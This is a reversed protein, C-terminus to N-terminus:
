GVRERLRALFKMIRESPKISFVTGSFEVQICDGTSLTEVLELRLNNATDAGNPRGELRLLLEDIEGIADKLPDLNGTVRCSRRNIESM